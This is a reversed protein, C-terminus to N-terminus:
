CSHSHLTPTAGNLAAVAATRTRVNLKEFINEVHKRVTHPSIFLLRAIEANQKGRAIWGLVEAERPTLGRHGSGRSRLEANIRMRVLHPRLLSLLTVDRETYNKGSRELYISRVRTGEAPLWLRLGDHIGLPRWVLADFELTRRQRATLNDSLRLVRESRAHLLGCLPNQWGYERFVEVLSQATAPGDDGVVDVEEIVRFGGEFDAEEYGVFADSPILRALGSLVSSPFPELGDELAGGSVIELLVAADRESILPV